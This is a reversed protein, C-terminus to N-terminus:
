AGTPRDYSSAVLRRSGGGSRLSVIDALGSIVVAVTIRGGGGALQFDFFFTSAPITLAGAFGGGGGRAGPGPPGRHLASPHGVGVTGGCCCSSATTRLEHLTLSARRSGGRVCHLQRRRWWWWVSIAFRLVRNVFGPRWRQSNPGLRSLVGAGRHDVSVVTLPQRRCSPFPLTSLGVAISLALRTSTKDRVPQWADSM